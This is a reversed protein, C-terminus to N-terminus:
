RTWCNGSSALTTPFNLLEATYYLTDGVEIVSNNGATGNNATPDGCSFREGM